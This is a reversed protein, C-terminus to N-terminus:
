PRVECQKSARHEAAHCPTCLWRVELPKSYDDHHAQAKVNGCSECPQKVLRGANVAKGVAVRAARREPFKRNQREASVKAVRKGAETKRYAKVREAVAEPNREYLKRHYARRQLRNRDGYRRWSAREGM